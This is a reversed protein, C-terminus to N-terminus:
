LQLEGAVEDRKEGDKEDRLVQLRHRTLQVTNELLHALNQMEDGKRLKVQVTYDGDILSHCVKEFRYIPGALKHSVFVTLLVIQVILIFLGAGFVWLLSNLLARRYRPETSFTRLYDEIDELLDEYLSAPPDPRDQLRTAIRNDVSERIIRTTTSTLSQAAVYLTFLMFLLMIVMPILFTLMYRGQLKRDIFFHKREFTKKGAM